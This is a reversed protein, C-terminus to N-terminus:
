THHIKLKPLQMCRSGNGSHIWSFLTEPGQFAGGPTKGALGIGSDWLMPQPVLKLYAYCSTGEGEKRKDVLVIAFCTSM